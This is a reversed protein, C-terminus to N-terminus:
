VDLGTANRIADAAVTAVTPAPRAARDATMCVDHLALVAARQAPTPKAPLRAFARQFARYAASRAAHSAPVLSTAVM